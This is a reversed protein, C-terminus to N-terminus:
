LRTVRRRAAVTPSSSRRGPHTFGVRYLQAKSVPATVLAAASGDRVLRTAKELADLAARAGMDTPRGPRTTGAPSCALVPLASGFAEAGDAMTAAIVVPGQWAARIADPDGVVVFPPLDGAAWAKGIIEPGIGAPDGMSVALPPVQDVM